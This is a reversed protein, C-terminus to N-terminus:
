APVDPIADAAPWWKDIVPPGDVPYILVARDGSKPYFLGDPHPYPWWPMSDTAANRDVGPRTCRVEQDPTSADDLILGDFATDVPRGVAGPGLQRLDEM